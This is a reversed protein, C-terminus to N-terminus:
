IYTGWILYILAIVDTRPLLSLGGYEFCKKGVAGPAIGASGLRGDPGLAGGVTPLWIGTCDRLVTFYRSVFGVPDM